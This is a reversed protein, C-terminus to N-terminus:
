RAAMAQDVCAPVGRPKNPLTSRIATWERDTLEDRM